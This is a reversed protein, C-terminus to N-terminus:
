QIQQNIIYAHFEHISYLYTNMKTQNNAAIHWVFEGLKSSLSRKVDKSSIDLYSDADTVSSFEIGQYHRVFVETKQSIVSTDVNYGFVNNINVLNNKFRIIENILFDAKGHISSTLALQELEAQMQSIDEFEFDQISGTNFDVISFSNLGGSLESTIRLYQSNVAM